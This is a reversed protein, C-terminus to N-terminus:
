SGVAVLAPALRRVRSPAARPPIRRVLAAVVVLLASAALTSAAVPVGLEPGAAIVAAGGVLLAAAVTTAALAGARPARWRQRRLRGVVAGVAALLATTLLVAVVAAGVVPLGPLRGPVTDGSPGFRASTMGLPDFVTARGIEDLSTSREAELAAQLYAFGTGSYRFSRGPSGVPTRDDGTVDNPLGSTHTLVHRLSVRARPDDAPVDLWPADLDDALPRDLSMRGAAVERLAAYATVPKGLSAVQVRTRDTVEAGLVGTTGYGESHVVAGDDVVVVAAGTAPSSELGEEVVGRVQEGVSREGAPEVSAAANAPVPVAAGAAVGLLATAFLGIALDAPRRRTPRRLRRLRRHTM